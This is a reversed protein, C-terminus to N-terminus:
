SNNAQESGAKQQDNKPPQQAVEPNPVPKFSGCCKHSADKQNKPVPFVILMMAGTFYCRM